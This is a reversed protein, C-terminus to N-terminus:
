KRPSFLEKIKTYQESDLLTEYLDAIPEKEMFREKRALQLFEEKMIIKEIRTWKQVRM